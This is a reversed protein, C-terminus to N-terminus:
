KQGTVVRWGGTLLRRCHLWALRVPGANPHQYRSRMYAATPLAVRRLLHARARWGPTAAVSDTFEDVWHREARLYRASVEGRIRELSSRVDAPVPTALADAALTLSHATVAAVGRDSALTVLGQWEDETLSRALRDIDVLWLIRVLDRHHMVPHVCALLLAHRAGAARAHPGLAPVAVAEAALEDGTVLGAFAPQASISWHLDWTHRQKPADCRELPLQQHLDDCFAPAAYGIAELAQRARPVDDQRLMADTDARPRESANGYLSYALATGKFLIPQVGAHALHALAEIVAHQTAVELAAAVRAHQAIRSSLSPWPASTPRRASPLAHLLPALQEAAIFTWLADATLGPAPPQPEGRLAALVATRAAAPAVITTASAVSM